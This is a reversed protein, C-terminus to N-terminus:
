RRLGRVFQVLRFAVWGLFLIGAAGVVEGWPNELRAPIPKLWPLQIMPRNLFNFPGNYNFFSAVYTQAVLLFWLFAAAFGMVAGAVRGGMWGIVRVVPHRAPSSQVALLNLRHFAQWELEGLSDEAIAGSQVAQLLSRAYIRAALWRLFIFLPLILATTGFYIVKMSAVAQEDTYDMMGPINQYAFPLLLLIMMPFSALAYFGSLGLCALRNRRILRRVLAFDYFATWRGTSAQRASAMPVYFMAAIFSMIGIWSIIIGVYYTEYGKNFSNQWGDYWGFAMMACGPLTFVWINFMTQVGIRLNNWLSAFLNGVVFLGHALTSTDPRRFISERFNQALVWNPLHLHQRTATDTALFAAFSVGQRRLDSQLWWQKLTTRQMFRSAWGVVAISLLISNCMVMGLLFKFPAFVFRRRASPGPQIAIMAQNITSSDAGSAITPIMPPTPYDTNM